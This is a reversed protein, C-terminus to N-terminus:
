SREQEDTRTLSIVIGIAALSVVLSGGGYSLFPHPIGTPPVIATAVAMNLMAQLPLQLLLTMGFIFRFDTRPLHRFIRLGAWCFFGWCLLLAVTGILGFEEGVVAFVFDTNAEPLFSLKQWGQGLGVGEVGGAGMTTLSQKLQYPAQNIDAWTALLGTVRKLQYPKWMVVGVVAPVACLAGALFYRKPWGGIFLAVTAGLIIFLSTGLDPQLVILPIAILLPFLVPVTGRILHTLQHRRNCLLRCILLPVTIKALESPQLSFGPLRIWRRAGNVKTGIGPVLVAALLLLTGMFLWPAARHWFSAPLQGCLVAALIGVTLFIVHRSLYVQEVDTPRSTISASHVMIVGIGVLISVVLLLM